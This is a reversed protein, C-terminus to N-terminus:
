NFGAIDNFFKQNEFIIDFRIVSEVKISTARNRSITLDNCYTYTGIINKNWALIIDIKNIHTDIIINREFIFDELKTFITITTHHPCSDHSM